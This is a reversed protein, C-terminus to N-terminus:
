ASQYCRISKARRVRGPMHCWWRGTMAWVLRHGAYPEAASDGQEAATRAVVLLCLMMLNDTM